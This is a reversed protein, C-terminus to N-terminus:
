PNDKAASNLFRDLISLYADVMAGQEEDMDKRVSRVQDAISKAQERLDSITLKGSLLGSMLENYKDRAEPPAGALYQKQIQGVLNSTVGLKNFVAFPNNTQAPLPAATVSNSIAPRAAANTAAPPDLTILAVKGRPLRVIGLNENQLTLTNTDLSLIKGAFHDGNRTEVQDALALSRCGILLLCSLTAFRVSV